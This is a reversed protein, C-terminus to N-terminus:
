IGLWRALAHIGQVYLATDKRGRDVAQRIYRKGCEYYFWPGYTPHEPPNKPLNWAYFQEDWTDRTRRDRSGGVMYGHFLAHCQGCLVVLDTPLEDGLREYTRHHAHLDEKSYCIQCRRKAHRKAAIAREKWADSEMYEDYDIVM